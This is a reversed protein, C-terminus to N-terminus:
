HARKGSDVFTTVKVTSLVKANLMIGVPQKVHMLTLAKEMDQMQITSGNELLTEAVINVM